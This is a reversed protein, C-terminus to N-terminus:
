DDDRRPKQGPPLIVIETIKPKATKNDRTASYNVTTGPRLAHINSPRGTGDLIRMTPSLLLVSDDIIIKGGGTDIADIRGGGSVAQPMTTAAAQVDEPLFASGTAWVALMVLLLKRIM